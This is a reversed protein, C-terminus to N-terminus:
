NFDTQKAIAIKEIKQPHQQKTSPQVIFIFFKNNCLILFFNAVARKSSASHLHYDFHDLVMEM